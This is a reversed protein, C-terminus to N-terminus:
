NDLKDFFADWAAKIVKSVVEDTIHQRVAEKLIDQYEEHLLNKIVATVELEVVKQLTNGYPSDMKDLTSKIADKIHDGLVSQIIASAIEQNITDKDMDIKIDM